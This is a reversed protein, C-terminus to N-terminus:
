ESIKKAYNFAGTLAVESNLCVKISFDQLTSQYRGKALYARMFDGNQISPLIKAAIGGALIIGGRPLCKLALNGTEAGYIECFMELAKVCLVDGDSIAKESIVAAPDDEKMRTETDEDELVSQTLKLYHYINVLGQGCVVREYSVHHPHKEMLYRLLGIELENRPAFDTHGGETAVMHHKNDSWIMLAEGLGTGAALVALNGKAYKADPNLEVFDNDPLDLVGWATAELDNLLCVQKAGTKHAVEKTRLVWPLNTTICEGDAVPGAVGICVSELVPKTEAFLFCDLLKEFHNFDASCFTEKKSCVWGTKEEAFLALITKTGGIDGALIM